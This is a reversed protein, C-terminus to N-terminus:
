LAQPTSGRAHHCSRLPYPRRLRRGLSRKARDAARNVAVHFDAETEEIVIDSRGNLRVRLSCRKDIGGKPGNIDSLVVAVGRIHEPFQSLAFALRYEVHERLEETLDANRVQIAIRM